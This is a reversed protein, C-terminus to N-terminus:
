WYMVLVNGYVNGDYVCLKVFMTFSNFASSDIAGM